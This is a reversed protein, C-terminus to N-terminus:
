INYSMKLLIYAELLAEGKFFMTWFLPTESPAWAGLM